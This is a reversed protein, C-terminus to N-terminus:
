GTATFDHARELKMERAEAYSQIEIRGIVHPHEAALLVVASEAREKTRYVTASGITSFPLTFSKKRGIIRGAWAGANPHTSRVFIVFGYRGRPM